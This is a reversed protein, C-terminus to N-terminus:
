MHGIKFAVSSCFQDFSFPLYYYFFRRIFFIFHSFSVVHFMDVNLMFVAYVSFTSHIIYKGIFM